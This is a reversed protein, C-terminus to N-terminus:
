TRGGRDSKVLLIRELTSAAARLDGRGVRSLAYRYNLEINDPDAMVQEYTVESGAQGLQRKRTEESAQDVESVVQKRQEPEATQRGIDQIERGPDQQAAALSVVFPVIFFFSMFKM